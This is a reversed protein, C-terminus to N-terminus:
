THTVSLTAAFINIDTAVVQGADILERIVQKLERDGAPVRFLSALDWITRSGDHLAALVTTACIDPM